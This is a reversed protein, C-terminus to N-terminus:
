QKKENLKLNTSMLKTINSMFIGYYLSRRYKCNIDQFFMFKRFINSQKFTYSLHHIEYKPIRWRLGENNKAKLESVLGLEQNMSGGFICDWSRDKLPWDKCNKMFMFSKRNLKQMISMWLRLPSHQYTKISMFPNRIGYYGWKYLWPILPHFQCKESFRSGSGWYM